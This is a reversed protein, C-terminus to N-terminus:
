GSINYEEFAEKIEKEIEALEQTQKPIYKKRLPTNVCLFSYFFISIITLGIIFTTIILAYIYKLKILDFYKEILLFSFMVSSFVTGVCYFIIIMFIFVIVCLNLFNFSSTNVLQINGNEAKLLNTENRNKFCVKNFCFIVPSIIITLVLCSIPGFSYILIYVKLLNLKTFSVLYREYEKRELIILIGLVLCVFAFILYFIRFVISFKNGVEQVSEMSLISSDNITNNPINNEKKFTDYNRNSNYNMAINSDYNGTDEKM